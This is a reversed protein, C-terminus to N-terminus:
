WLQLQVVPEPRDGDMGVGGPLVGRPGYRGRKIERLEDYVVGYRPHWIKWLIMGRGCRGCRLPDRGTSAWVRERDCTRGVIRYTGKIARGLAVLVRTLLGRVKTAKWTAHRGYSRMRHFGKPLMHQVMRGVCEFVPLEEEQRKGTKHDNDWYRVRQGDYRLIRRLSIPPSVVYKALSYARGAGGGPVKGKDLYAVLGRPYQRWLADILQRRAQTKVREKLMTFLSYPWKKHLVACPVYDVERGRQAPTVGGSTMLRHRHPNGHGARGATELVVVYGVDLVGRTM